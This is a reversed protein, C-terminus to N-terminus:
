HTINKQKKKSFLLDGGFENLGITPDYKENLCSKLTLAEPRTPM